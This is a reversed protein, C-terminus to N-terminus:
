LSRKNYKYRNVIDHGGHFTLHKEMIFNVSNQLVAAFRGPLRFGSSEWWLPRMRVMGISLAYGQASSDPIRSRDRQVAQRQQTVLDLVSMEGRSRLGSGRDSQKGFDVRAPFM